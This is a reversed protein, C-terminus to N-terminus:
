VKMINEKKPCIPFPFMVTLVYLLFLRDRRCLEAIFVAKEM